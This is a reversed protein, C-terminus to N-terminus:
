LSQQRAGNLGVNVLKVLLENTIHIAPQHYSKRLGLHASTVNDKM